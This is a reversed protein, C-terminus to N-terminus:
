KAAPGEEGAICATIGNNLNNWLIVAKEVKDVTVKPYWIHEYWLFCIKNLHDYFIYNDFDSTFGAKKLVKLMQLEVAKKRKVADVSEEAHRIIDMRRVSWKRSVEDEARRSMAQMTFYGAAEEAEFEAKEKPTYVKLSPKVAKSVFKKGTLQELQAIATDAQAKWSAVVGLKYLLKQFYYREKRATYLQRYLLPNVRYFACWAEQSMEEPHELYYVMNSMAFDPVGDWKAGHLSNFLVMDPFVAALDDGIAWAKLINRDTQLEGEPWISGTIAFEEIGNNCEDNLRIRIEYNLGNKTRETTYILNNTREM